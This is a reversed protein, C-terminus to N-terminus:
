DHLEQLQDLDLGGFKSLMRAALVQLVLVALLVDLAVGLEVTLSVGHSALVAVLAVGNEVLLFGVIQSVAKRRTVLVLFGILVIAFGFPIVDTEPTPALEVVGRTAAFAVATVVAAAVLSATVNLLPEAERSDPSTRVIRLVVMPIVVVKLVAAGCGLGVEGWSGHEIGVLVTVTAVAAGQAALIRVMAGLSRRWLVLVAAILAGGAALDLLEVYADHSM